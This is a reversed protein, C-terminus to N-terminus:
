KIEIGNVLLKGVKFDIWEQELVSEVNASQRTPLPNQNFQLRVSPLIRRSTTLHPLLLPPIKVQVQEYTLCLLSLLLGLQLTFM